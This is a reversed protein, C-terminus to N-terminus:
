WERGGPQDAHSEGPARPRRSLPFSSLSLSLSSSNLAGRMRTVGAGGRPAARGRNGREGAAAVAARLTGAEAGAGSVLAAVEEVGAARAARAAELRAAEATASSADCLAADRARMVAVLLATPLTILPPLPCTPAGDDDGGGGTAAILAELTAFTPNAEGGTPGRARLRSTKPPLTLLSLFSFFHPHSCPSHTHTPATKQKPRRVM